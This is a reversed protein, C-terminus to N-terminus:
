SAGLLQNSNAMDGWRLFHTILFRTKSTAERGSIGNEYKHSSMEMVRTTMMMGTMGRRM